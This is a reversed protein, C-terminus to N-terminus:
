EVFGGVMEIQFAQDPQFGEELAIIARQQHGRMVALEHVADDGLHHLDVTARQSGIAAVVFEVLRLAREALLLLLRLELALLGHQRFLDFENLAELRAGRMGRLHLAPHLLEVLDFADLRRLPALRHREVEQRRRARAVVHDAQLTDVLAIAAPRDILAEIEHDRSFLAPRHHADVAGALRGQQLQNGAGRLGVVTRHREAAADLHAVERLVSHVQEVALAGHELIEFIGERLGPLPGQPRQGAAESKGAVVDLLAATHQRAALLRPQHHGLHQEIRRIEQHEVLRGVMQIHRGLFHQDGRQRLIFAGHQEHRM